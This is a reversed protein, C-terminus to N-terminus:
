WRGRVASSMLSCSVDHPDKTTDFRIGTAVNKPPERMDSTGVCSNGELVRALILRGLQTCIRTKAHAHTQVLMSNRLM